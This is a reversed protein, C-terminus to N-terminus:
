RLFDFLSLNLVLSSTQLTAQMQTLSSQLNTVASAYDIDRVDSLLVETTIAADEIQQRKSAMAQARAGIVGRIRTVDAGLEDLKGGAISIGRTDDSRLARELELLASIIGRTQTPNVDAGILTRGDESLTADALGLDDIAASANLSSVAFAATGGTADTLEIGNGVERFSATVAVGAEAAALNILDIVDGVTQASDLDVDVTDGSSAILQLDAVGDRRTVGLDFNLRDLPTAAGFTRLGLDAATTGGNEGISLSAGSVQNFVDIGTGADDIRAVVFIGAGNIQNIVDQVTTAEALDITASLNGNSVIFGSELDIGDGSVLAEVPTLRTVRPILSLGNITGSIPENVNLGLDAAIGGSRPGSDSIAVSSSGTAIEISTGVLSATLGSDVAAASVNIQDIVDGITDANSLDVTFPGVGDVENIVLSGSRIQQGTAGTIDELRVNATLEPTLVVNSDIPDSLSRFLQDGPASVATITGGGSRTFREGTDGVYAIGGAADVFPASTTDRGGFIYRGGFQRNGVIVLQQRIGAVLEAEAAREAASTLNNVTQSAISTSEILLATIEGIASDAATLENDGFRLNEQIQRQNALSNTLDVARSAAVPNESASVFTRGTAIQTQALFLERQTRRVSNTILDSRMGSSVRLLNVPSVAM